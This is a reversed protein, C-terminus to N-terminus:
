TISTTFGIINVGTALFRSYIGLLDLENSLISSGMIITYGADQTQVAYMEDQNEEAFSSVNTNTGTVEIAIEKPASIDFTILTEAWSGYIAKTLYELSIFTGKYKYALRLFQFARIPHFRDCAYFYGFEGMKQLRSYFWKGFINLSQVKKLDLILKKWENETSKKLYDISQDINFNNKNM